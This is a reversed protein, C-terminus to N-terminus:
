MTQIFCLGGDFFPFGFVVRRHIMPSGRSPVESSMKVERAKGSEEESERERERKGM